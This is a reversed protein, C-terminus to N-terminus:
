DRKLYKVLDALEQPTLQIELGAPMISVAGPRREEITSKSIQAVKQADLQLTLAEETEDRIVGSHVRGDDTLVVVPEYNRVFTLSPFLISEVLAREDRIRGIRNLDPGVDGGLYGRRHCAACAAKASQFVRLGRREDAGPMLALIEDVRQLKGQNEREIRELLPGAKAVVPEGFGALQQRLRDPFLATAAPADQLATVVAAGVRADKSRAFVAMLPELDMAAMHPAERAVRLLRDSDLPSSTLLDVALARNAVGSEVRLQSCVFEFTEPSLQRSDKPLAVLARMRIEGSTRNDASIQRLRLITKEDLTGDSLQQLAAIAARVVDNSGMLQENLPEAWVAPLPKQRSAAMAGLVALRVQEDAAPDALADAMFQRVAASGAFRRLRDGLRHLAGADTPRRRWERRFAEVAAEGWDAHRELIWWATENLSAVESFLLPEIDAPQLHGGGQMQDLAILAARRVRDDAAGVSQRAAEADNLEIAAHILSHELFRDVEAAADREAIVASPVAALLKVTDGPSGVRGLAEAAGRRHHAPGREIMAALKSAAGKDKHLSISHLAAQRVTEDADDLATRVAARARQDDIWTLAWVAERRHRASTSDSLIPALVEVAAPGAKGMRQRAQNRVAFREDGLLAALERTGLRDWAIQRGRPDAIPPGDERRVRYIGGLVDAKELQSTPCCLRFWGGTDVVVVSGDADELVDTPHFDLNDSALLDSTDCAFTAGRPTLVHRTVKRMNFLCALVNDRYEGGLWASELRALGCPAAAGLHALVPMLEGTRPHGALPAHDKGYVGGYVAHLLGDRLGQQPHVLFTTSFIREGGPTFVVDVPNDMGGTMVSEIPGGAPRRRFIHAARTEFTSGDAREHAQAAWAGKCWYLWGDPGLFPGHLDNACHTLTKGDFWVERREAVGDDDADTFKWIEPPAAVYLSGDFWLAGEPFMLQDAFVTRRDFRGDGDTDELRVVRHPRKQRQVEVPENSGSSDTVYLRGREDFDASVPRDVLPPGAALEVRLGGPVTFTHGNVVFEGAALRSCAALWATALVAFALFTRPNLRPPRFQRSELLRM